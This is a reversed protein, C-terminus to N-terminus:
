KILEIMEKASSIQKEIPFSRKFKLINRATDVMSPYSSRMLHNAYIVIKFGYRILEKEFVQSYTSPVCVLPKYNASKSFKKAFDNPDQLSHM